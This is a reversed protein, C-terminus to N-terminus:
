RGAVYGLKWLLWIFPDLCRHPTFSRFNGNQDPASGTASVAFFHADAFSRSERLLREEQCAWLCYRVEWDIRKMEEVPFKGNYFAQNLSTFNGRENLPIVFQFLDFKSLAIAIPIRIPDGQKVKHFRRLQHELTILVEEATRGTTLNSGPKVEPPLKDLVRPMSWPDALYIIGDARLVHEGFQVLAVDDAIDEGALDYILLNIHCPYATDEITLQYVLPESREPQGNADFKGRQNGGVIRHDQLIPKYYTNRYTTDTQSNLHVLHMIGNGYQMFLGRRLQDILLAIYHSKGAATDGVIAININNCTEIGEFLLKFCNPCQRRAKETVFLPGNLEAVWVRSRTYELTGPAPAKLLRKNQTISSYVDCDGPHFDRRCYPCRIKLLPSVAPMGKGETKNRM